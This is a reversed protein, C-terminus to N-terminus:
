LVKILHGDNMLTFHSVQCKQLIVLCRVVFSLESERTVVLCLDKRWWLCVVDSFGTKMLVISHATTFYLQNQLIKNQPFPIISFMENIKLPCVNQSQQASNWLIVRVLETM